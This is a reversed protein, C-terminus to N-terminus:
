SFDGNCTTSRVDWTTSRADWPTCRVDWPTSYLFTKTIFVKKLTPTFCFYGLICLFM